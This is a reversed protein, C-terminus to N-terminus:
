HERREEGAENQTLQRLLWVKALRWDRLVTEQSVNLVEAVEKISLGGFFRMEVVRSKRPDIRELAGLADDLAVIDTQRDRFLAVAENLPIQRWEGGRKDYRRARAYDVLIRRMLQASVGFFHARNQWNMDQLHILRQYAEHVLATSQLTHADRERGMYRHALRHLEHYVLPILQELAEQEGNSWAKLLQTVDQPSHAAM